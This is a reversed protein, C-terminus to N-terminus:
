EVTFSYKGQTKHGDVSVINWSVQYKGADLTSTLPLIIKKNDEDALQLIGANVVKNDASRLEIKSFNLEIGESFSLTLSQPASTIVANAAPSEAKLHAHAFAQQSCMGIVLLTALSFTRYFSSSTKSM